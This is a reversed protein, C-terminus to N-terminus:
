WTTYTSPGQSRIKDAIVGNASTQVLVRQHNELKAVDGLQSYSTMVTSYASRIPQVTEMYYDM